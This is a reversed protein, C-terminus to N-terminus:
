RPRRWRRRFLRERLRKRRESGAWEDLLEGLRQGHVTLADLRLLDLDRLHLM